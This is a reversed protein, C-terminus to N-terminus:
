PKVALSYIEKGRAFLVQNGSHGLKMELDIASDSFSKVNASDKKNQFIEIKQEETLCVVVGKDLVTFNLGVPFVNEIKRVDYTELSSDFRLILRDHQGREDDFLMLMLVNNEYKAEVVKTHHTIETIKIQKHKGKAPFVSAFYVGMMDQIAVGDFLQTSNPMISAVRSQMPLENASSFVIEYINSMYKFYLRNECSMIDDASVDKFMTWKSNELDYIGVKGNDLVLAVPINSPTFGFRVKGALSPVSRNDVYIGSTSTVIRRGSSETFGTIMAAYKYLSKIDFTMSGTIEKVKAVFTVMAQFGDPAPLEKGEVFWARYWRMYAGDVGGPIVSEFPCYVAAAPYDADKDLISVNAKMQDIMSTKMSPFRPHMHQFPHIGTFMYFSIIAFSYWDTLQTFNQGCKWYRINPMIANAPYNPTQFSNTDIFYVDKFDSTVMYNLPNGDVQLYGPHAHIGNKIGDHIQLVLKAMIEHTVGERTRFAKNLIQILPMPKNPVAMMKYGVPVDKKDLLIANPIVIKPHKLVALEKFKDEPIMKGPECVKFVEDGVKYASGEGGKKMFNDTGLDVTKDTGQIKYKM